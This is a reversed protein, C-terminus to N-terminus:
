KHNYINIHSNSQNVTHSIADVNVAVDERPEKTAGLAILNDEGAQMEELENPLLFLTHRLLDRGAMTHAAFSNCKLLSPVVM